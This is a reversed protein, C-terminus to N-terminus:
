VNTQKSTKKNIFQVLFQSNTMILYALVTKALHFIIWGSNPYERFIMKQQLFTFIEKCLQPLSEVFILGCIIIIAITLIASINFNLLIKEETFGKDLHLKNILWSTRFIFLQLILIYVFITLLGLVTFLIFSQQTGNSNFLGVISYLQPFVTLSSFVLWIGLIKILITWFTRITM